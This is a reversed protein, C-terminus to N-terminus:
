AAETVLRDAPAIRHLRDRIALKRKKLQQLEHPNAWPRQQMREIEEDM